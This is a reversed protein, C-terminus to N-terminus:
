PNFRETGHMKTKRGSLAPKNLLTLLSVRKAKTLRTYRQREIPLKAKNVAFKDSANAYLVQIYYLWSDLPGEGPHAKIEDVLAVHLDSEDDDLLTDSGSLSLRTSATFSFHRVWDISEPVM